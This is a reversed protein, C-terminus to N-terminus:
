RSLSLALALDHNHHQQHRHGHRHPHHQDNNIMTLIINVFCMDDHSHVQPQLFFISTATASQEVIGYAYKPVLISGFSFSRPSHQSSNLGCLPSPGGRETSALPLWPDGRPVDKRSRHGATGHPAGHRLWHRVFGHGQLQTSRSAAAVDGASLRLFCM